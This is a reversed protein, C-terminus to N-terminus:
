QQCTESIAASGGSVPPWGTAGKRVAGVAESKM